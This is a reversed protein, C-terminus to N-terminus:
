NYYKNRDVGDNDLLDSALARNKQHFEEAMIAKNTM